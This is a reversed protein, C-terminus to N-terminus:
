FVDPPTQPTRSPPQNPHQIPTTGLRGWVTLTTTTSEAGIREVLINARSTPTTVSIPIEYRGTEPLNWFDEQLDFSTRDVKYVRSFGNNYDNEQADLLGFYSFQVSFRVSTEAGKVYDVLLVFQYQGRMDVELTTSAPLSEGLAISMIPTNFDSFAQRPLTM